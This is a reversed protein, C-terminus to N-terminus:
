DSARFSFILVVALFTLMSIAELAASVFIVAWISVWFAVFGIAFLALEFPSRDKTLNMAWFYSSPPKPALGIDQV